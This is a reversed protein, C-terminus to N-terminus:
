ASSTAHCLGRNGSASAEFRREGAEGRPTAGREQRVDGRGVRAEIGRHGDQAPEIGSAAGADFESDREGIGDGVSGDNLGGEDTREVGAEAEVREEVAEAGFAGGDVHGNDGHDGVGDDAASGGVGEEAIGDGGADISKDDRVECKFFGRFEGGECTGM